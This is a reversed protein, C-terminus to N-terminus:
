PDIYTRRNLIKHLFLLVTLPAINFYVLVRRQQERLSFTYNRILSTVFQRRYRIRIRGQAYCRYVCHRLSSYFLGERSVDRLNVGNMPSQWSFM